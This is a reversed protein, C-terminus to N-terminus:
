SGALAPLPITPGDPVPVVPTPLRVTFATRAPRGAVTVTGGHAAVVAQVIALGLGTSGRARSRSGDGRAFREFVHAALAPPIGPGGDTVTLLVAQDAPPAGGTALLNTGTTTGPSVRRSM